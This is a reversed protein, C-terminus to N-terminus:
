VNLRSLLLSLSTPTRPREKSPSSNNKEARPIIRNFFNILLIFYEFFSIVSAFNIIISSRFLTTPFNQDLSFSRDFSSIM